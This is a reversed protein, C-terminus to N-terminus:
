TYSKHLPPRLERASHASARARAMHSLLFGNCVSMAHMFVLQEAVRRHRKDQAERAQKIM